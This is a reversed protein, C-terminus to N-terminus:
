LVAKFAALFPEALRPQPRASDRSITLPMTCEPFFPKSVVGNGAPALSDVLGIGLKEAVLPIAAVSTAVEIAVQRTEGYERFAEDLAAGITAHSGYSVLDRGSLDSPSLAESGALPDDVRLFVRIPVTCLTQTRVTPALIPSLTMALDIDGARLAEAIELAPLSHLHVRVDPYNQRFIQLARPLLSQVLPQAAGLRLLGVKREGVRRALDKLGELERFVREADGTLLQAEATPVLRGGAREFLRYGLQDELHQLVKSVAPQSVSLANAAATLTGERMIARFVELQRSNM